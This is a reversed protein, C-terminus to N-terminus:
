KYKCILILDEDQLVFYRTHKRLSSGTEVLLMMSDVGEDIKLKFNHAPPM